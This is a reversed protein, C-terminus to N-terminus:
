HSRVDTQQGGRESVQGHEPHRQTQKDKDM